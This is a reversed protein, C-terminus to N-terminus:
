HDHKKHGDGHGHKMAGRAGISVIPVTVELDTGDEFELTLSVTEGKKLPAKLNILMVHLGGPELTVTEHHGVPLGGEVERMRMVGQDDMTHNHIQVMGASKSRAGILRNADGHNTITMFAGGVKANPPTERAFPETVMIKGDAAVLPAVVVLFFAVSACGAIFRKLM